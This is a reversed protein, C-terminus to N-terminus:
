ISRTSPSFVTVMLIYQMQRLYIEAACLLPSVGNSKEEQKREKKTGNREERMGNREVGTGNGEVDIGNWEEQYVTGGEGMLENDEGLWDGDEVCLRKNEGGQKKKREKYHNEETSM